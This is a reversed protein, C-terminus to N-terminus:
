CLMHNTINRVFRLIVNDFVVADIFLFFCPAISIQKLKKLNFPCINNTYNYIIQPVGYSFFSSVRVIWMTLLSYVSM